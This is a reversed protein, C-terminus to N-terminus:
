NLDLEKIDKGDVQITGHDPDYFRQLLQFVTSKGSGSSGCLAITKGAAINLSLGQLVQCDKRTPYNFNVNAFQISGSCNSPKEGGIKQIDILSKREIM